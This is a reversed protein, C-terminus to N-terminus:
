NVLTIPAFQTHHKKTQGACGRPATWNCLTCPTRVTPTLARHEISTTDDTDPWGGTFKWAFHSKHKPQAPERFVIDASTDAAKEGIFKWVFHSKHLTQTCKSQAPERLVPTAPHAHPVKGTCKLRRTNPSPKSKPLLPRKRVSATVRTAADPATM